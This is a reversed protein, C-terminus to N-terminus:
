LIIFRKSFIINKSRWPALCEPLGLQVGELVPFTVPNSANNRSLGWNLIYRTEGTGELFQCRPPGPPSKDGRNGRNRWGQEGEETKWGGEEMGERGELDM